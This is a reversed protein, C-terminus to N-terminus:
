WAIVKINYIIMLEIIDFFSMFFCIVETIQQMWIHHATSSDFWTGNAALESLVRLRPRPPYSGAGYFVRFPSAEHSPWGKRAADPMAGRKRRRLAPTWWGCNGARPSFRGISGGISAAPISGANQERRGADRPSFFRSASFSQNLRDGVNCTSTRKAPERSESYTCLLVRRAGGGRSSHSSRPPRM